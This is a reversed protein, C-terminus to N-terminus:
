FTNLLSLFYIDYLFIHNEKKKNDETKMGLHNLITQIKTCACFLKAILIEMEFQCMEKPQQKGLSTTVSFKYQFSLELTSTNIM